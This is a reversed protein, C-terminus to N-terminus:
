TKFNRRFKKKASNLKAQFGNTKDDIKTLLPIYKKNYFTNVNKLINHIKTREERFREITKNTSAITSKLSANLVDSNKSNTILHSIIKTSEDLRKDLELSKELIELVIINAEERKSNLSNLTSM